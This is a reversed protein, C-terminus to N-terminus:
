LLAALKDSDEPLTEEELADLMNQMAQSVANHKVFSYGEFLAEFIPKTIIHQALMDVAQAESISPNINRSCVRGRFQRLRSEAGAQDIVLYQIREKQREAIVAVDKAWQEWYRRDGVKQVLRAFMVSQLQEFQMELQRAISDSATQYAVQKRAM